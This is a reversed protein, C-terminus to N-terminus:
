GATAGGATAGSGTAGGAPAGATDGTTARTTAGATVLRGRNMLPAELVVGWLVGGGWRLSQQKGIYTVSTGGVAHLMVKLTKLFIIGNEFFLDRVGLFYSEM